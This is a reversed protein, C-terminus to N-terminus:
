SGLENRLALTIRERVEEPLSVSEPVGTEVFEALEREIQVLQTHFRRCNVCLMRHFGLMARSVFFLPADLERSTWEAAQKCTIM